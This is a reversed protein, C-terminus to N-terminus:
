RSPKKTKTTKPPTATAASAIGLERQLEEFGRAMAIRYADARTVELGPRSLKAAIVDAAAIWEPKIRVTVQITDTPRPAMAEVQLAAAGM